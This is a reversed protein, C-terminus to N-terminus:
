NLSWKKINLLDTIQKSNKTLPMFETDLNKKTKKCISPWNEVKWKNSFINKEM